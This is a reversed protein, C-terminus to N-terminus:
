KNANPKMMGGPVLGRLLTRRPGAARAIQAATALPVAAVGRPGLVFATADGPAMVVQAQHACTEGAQLTTNCGVADSLALREVVPTAASLGGGAAASLDVTWLAADRARPQGGETTERYLYILAFRGDGSLGFGGASFGAPVLAALSGAVASGGIRLSGDDLVMRAGDNSVARLSRGAPLQGNFVPERLAAQYVRLRGDPYSGVVLEGDASRVLGVGPQSTGPDNGYGASGPDTGHAQSGTLSAFQGGVTLMGVGSGAGPPVRIAALPAGDAAVALVSSTAPPSAELALGGFFPQSPLTGTASVGLTGADVRWLTVAGAALLASHDAYLAADSLGPVNATQLTWGSTGPAWRGIVGDAAFYLAGQRLSYQASRWRGLPLNVQGAALSPAALVPIQVESTLLPWASRLTVTQGATLGQLDVRLVSLDGAFRPDNALTAAQQTAGQVQLSNTIGSYLSLVGDLYVRGTGPLLAASFSPGIAPVRNDVLVPVQVPLTGPLDISVEVTGQQLGRQALVTAADLDVTLADVNTTGSTSRLRVWPTLSRATWRAGTASRTTIQGSTVLSAATSTGDLQVGPLQLSFADGVTLRFTSTVEGGTPWASARIQPTYEAGIPLHTADFSFEYDDGGLALLRAQGSADILTPGQLADTWTPRQLHVRRRYVKGQEVVAVGGGDAVIFDLPLEGGAPPDVRYVVRTSARYRADSRSVLTLDLAYTGAALQQTSVRLANGLWQVAMGSVGGAGQVEIEGAAAPVSVAIDQTPAPDRGARTLTTEAAVHINPLVELQLPVRLPSGAVTERCDPDFCVPVLLEGRHTGVARSTDFRLSADFSTGNIVMSYDRALGDTSNLGLYINRNGTYNVQARFTAQTDTAAGELMTGTVVAPEYTASVSGNVPGSPVPIPLPVGVDAAGGGGCATLATLATIAMFALVSVRNLGALARRRIRSAIRDAQPPTVSSM